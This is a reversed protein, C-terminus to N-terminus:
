SFTLGSLVNERMAVHPEDQLVASIKEETMNLRLVEKMNLNLMVVSSIFLACSHHPGTTQPTM